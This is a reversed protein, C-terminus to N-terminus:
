KFMCPNSMLHVRRNVNNSGSEPIHLDGIREVFFSSQIHDRDSYPPQPFVFDHHADLLSPVLIFQTPLRGDEDSQFLKIFMDRAIKEVFVTEYSAAHSGIVNDDEDMDELVIDGSELLPQSIDVFPGVLIVVDPKTGLVRRMLEELPEYSLNTSLTFPGSAVVINLPIGNQYIPSHHYELLKAPSTMSLPRPIGEIIKKAQLVRASSAIGEVLVCQGPFLSYADINKLQLKVRRGGSDRRSGELLISSTNIRGEAADCCIRGAIWVTEQSPLGVPQLDKEDINAFQCMDSQLRLLHKDLSRAREELSTYMFRYRQNVNDCAEDELLVCRMGFPKRTSNEFPGRVSLQENFTTLVRGKDHRQSFKPQDSLPQSLPIPQSGVTDSLSWQRAEM